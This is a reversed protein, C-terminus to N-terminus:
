FNEEMKIRFFSKSEYKINLDKMVLEDLSLYGEEAIKFGCLNTKERFLKFDLIEFIDSRIKM